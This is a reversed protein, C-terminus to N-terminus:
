KVNRIDFLPYIPNGIAFSDSFGCLLLAAWVPNGKSVDNMDRCWGAAINMFLETVQNIIEQDM